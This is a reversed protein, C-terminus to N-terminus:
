RDAIKDDREEKWPVDILEPHTVTQQLAWLVNWAAATLHSEDEWGSLYKALHRLASDILSHQPIGKDVNHEGYSPNLAGEQCHISVLRIAEWPLLDMRGKLNGDADTSSRVAGTSFAENNKGPNIM